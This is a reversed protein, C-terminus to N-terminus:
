DFNVGMIELYGDFQEQTMAGIHIAVVKGENDLFYTSPLGIVFYDEKVEGTKDIGIDFTLGFENIFQTIEALSEGDNIGVIKIDEGFRSYTKQFTPMELRCPGCWTAWFNIIVNKGRLDSLSINNQNVGSITFDPAFKGVAPADSQLNIEKSFIDTNLNQSSTLIVIAFLIGITFGSTIIILFKLRSM